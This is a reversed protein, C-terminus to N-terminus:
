YEWLLLDGHIKILSVGYKIVSNLQHGFGLTSVRFRTGVGNKERKREKERVYQFMRTCECIVRAGRGCSQDISRTFVVVGCHLVLTRRTCKNNTLGGKGERGGQWVLICNASPEFAISVTV